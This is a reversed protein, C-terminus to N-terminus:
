ACPSMGFGIAVSHNAYLPCCPSADGDFPIFGRCTEIIDEGATYPVADVWAGGNVSGQVVGNNLRLELSWPGGDVCDIDMGSATWPGLPPGTGEVSNGIECTFTPDPTSLGFANVACCMVESQWCDPYVIGGDCVCDCLDEDIALGGNYWVLGGNKWLLPM